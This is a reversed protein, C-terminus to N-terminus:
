FAEHHGFAFNISTATYYCSGPHVRNIQHPRSVENYFHTAAPGPIHSQVQFGKIITGSAIVSFEDAYCYSCANIGM